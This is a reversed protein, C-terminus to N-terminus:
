RVIDAGDRPWLKSNGYSYGLVGFLATFKTGTTFGTPPYPTSPQGYQLFLTDDVRNANDVIFEYFPANGDPKDNTITVNSLVILMSQYADAKPGGTAVDSPAAAVASFPLTTGADTITVDTAIVEALGLPRGYVGTVAVQNGRKVSVGSSVWVGSYPLLSIDQMAFGNTGIATVYAPPLTVPAGYSPHGAAGPDRMTEITMPCVTNGPNPFGPCSDCADGRGDGDSDEQNPNAAGPCNDLANDIGDGDLDNPDPKTCTNTPDTPCRDCADGVGDGDSDAQQGNDVPRIPNFITPCDDVADDVGDGDQDTSTIGNPYESRYPTCTPEDTPVDTKCFFLPYYTEGAARVSALTTTGGIDQAVCARKARGCTDLTECAQGGIAPDAVLADDGYLVTGGRLVLVVDEVGADIVARYDKSTAGDFITIDAAYGPKLAGVFDSVGASWAANYTVMRWLDGDSFHKALYTTNFSDACKLERLLNMSGSVVWDTGLAIPVGLADYLTVPATNGYLSINSRPSWILRTQDARLPEVDSALAAIGHILATPPEMLDYSTHQDNTCVLENRAEPGVGEALHPVYAHVGLVDEHTTRSSGYDCGSSLLIGSSDDLPFTDSDVPQLLLGEFLTPDNVDFNRALGKKGGAAILSVAGGMVFRLEAFEQVATSASSNYNLYAHGNLGNAWEARHDYRETGHTVPANNAYTIHDHPNILAPSIVGDACAVVTAQAYGPAASCDCSACVITGTDDVLVEGRHLVENPALVTGRLLKGSTGDTVSCTGSSPPPIAPQNCETVKFPANPPLTPDGPLPGDTTTDPAADADAGGDGNDQPSSCAGVAALATAFCFVLGRRIWM